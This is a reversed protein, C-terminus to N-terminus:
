YILHSSLIHMHVTTSQLCLSASGNFMLVFRGFMILDTVSWCFQYFLHLFCSHLTIHSIRLCLVASFFTRLIALYFISTICQLNFISITFVEKVQCTQLLGQFFRMCMELARWLIWLLPLPIKYKKISWDLNESSIM